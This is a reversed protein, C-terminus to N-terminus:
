FAWSFGLLAGMTSPDPAGDVKREALRYALGADLAMRPNFRYRLGGALDVDQDGEAGSVNSPAGGFRTMSEVSLNLKPSAAYVAALNTQIAMDMDEVFHLEPAVHLSWKGARQSLAAGVGMDTPYDEFDGGATGLELGATVAVRTNGDKSKFAGYRGFAGVNGMGSASQDFNSAGAGTLEESYRMFPLYAGVTIRDTIGYYGSFYNVNAGQKLEAGGEEMSTQEIAAQIGFGYRGKAANFASSTFIGSRETATEGAVNVGNGVISQAALPTAVVLAALPAIRTLNFRM